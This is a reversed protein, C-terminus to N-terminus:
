IMEPQLILHRYVTQVISRREPDVPNHYQITRQEPHALTFYLESMRVRTVKELLMNLM